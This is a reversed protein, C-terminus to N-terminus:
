PMAEPASLSKSYYGSPDFCCVRKKGQALMDCAKAIRTQRTTAQKASEVWHVWDVRALTTTANWVAKAQPCADLAQRLDEPLAPEPEPKLPAIEISVTDGFDAAAAARLARDIRLWHGLQGDPELTAQFAQGNLKGAVSTRGRRPLTKSAAEPLLVFAWCGDDSQAVPRLIKASFVSTKAPVM